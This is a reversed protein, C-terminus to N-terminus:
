VKKKKIKDELDNKNIYLIFFSDQYRIDTPEQGKEIEEFLIGQFFEVM